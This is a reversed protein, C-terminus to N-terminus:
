SFGTTEFFILLEPFNLSDILDQLGKTHKLPNGSVIFTYFLFKTTCFRFIAKFFTFMKLCVEFSKM